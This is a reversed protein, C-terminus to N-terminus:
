ERRCFCNWCFRILKLFRYSYCM